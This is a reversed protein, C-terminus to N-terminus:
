LLLQTTTSDLLVLKTINSGGGNGGNDRIVFDRLRVNYIGSFSTELVMGANVIWRGKSLNLSTLVTYTSANLSINSFTDSTVFGINDLGIAKRFNSTDSISYDKTGNKDVLISFENNITTSATTMNRTMLSTVIRGSSTGYTYLVGLISDDNGLIELRGAETVATTGNNNSNNITFQTTKASFRAMSRNITLPGTM